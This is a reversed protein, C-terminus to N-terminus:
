LDVVLADLDRTPLADVIEQHAVPAAVHPRRPELLALGQLPLDAVEDIADGGTPLRQGIASGPETDDLDELGRLPGDLTTPAGTASEPLLPVPRARPRRDATWAPRRRPLTRPGIVVAESGAVGNGFRERRVRVTPAPALPGHGGRAGKERPVGDGPEDEALPPARLARTPGEATRASSARADSSGSAGSPRVIRSATTAAVGSVSTAPQIAGDMRPTRRGSRDSDSERTAISGTHSRMEWTRPLLSAVRSATVSSFRTNGSSAGTASAGARDDAPRAALM